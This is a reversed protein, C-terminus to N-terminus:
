RLARIALARRRGPGISHDPRGLHHRAGLGALAMLGADTVFFGVVQDDSIRVRKKGDPSFWWLGAGFEGANFGIIWGDFVKVSFWEGALGEKASGQLVEFPMPPYSEQKEPYPSGKERKVSRLRVSTRGELLFVVWQHHTDYNATFWREDGVKPPPTAVWKSLDASYDSSGAFVRTTVLLTALACGTIRRMSQKHSDYM